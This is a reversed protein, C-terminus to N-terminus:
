RRTAIFWTGVAAVAALALQLPLNGVTVVSVAVAIWMTGIAAVKASRPMAEEGTMVRVHRGLFPHNVLWGHLRESGRLYCASAALLFVTGPLLPLIVGAVGVALFLTGALVWLIRVGTAVRRLRAANRGAPPRIAARGRM